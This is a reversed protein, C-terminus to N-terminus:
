YYCGTTPLTSSLPPEGNVIGVFLTQPCLKQGDFSMALHLHSGAPGAPIVHGTYSSHMILQGSEVRDGNKAGVIGGGDSGHCYTYTVGDDGDIIVGRGCRGAPNTATLIGGNIAYINSGEPLPIDSAPYGHHDKTFWVEHEDYFIRDTPLSYGGVVNGNSSCSTTSDSGQNDTGLSGFEVLLAQAQRIRAPRTTPLHKKNPIEFRELFINSAEELSTSAQLDRLVNKKVNSELEHWLFELQLGLDSEGIQKELAFKVLDHKRSDTWQIIGYGPQGKNRGDSINPQDTPAFDDFMTSTGPKSIEGRTNLYGFEVIRPDFTGGSESEVNGMVGATQFATLGKGILFNWIKERNDNGPLFIACEAYSSVSGNDYFPTNLRKRDESTLALAVNSCSIILITAVLITQKLLRIM